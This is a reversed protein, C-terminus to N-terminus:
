VSEWGVLTAPFIVGFGKVKAPPIATELRTYSPPSVAEKAPVLPIKAPTTFVFSATVSSRSLTAARNASGFAPM